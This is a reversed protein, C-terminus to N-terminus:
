PHPEYNIIRSDSDNAASAESLDWLGGSNAVRGVAHPLACWSWRAGLVGLLYVDLATGAGVVERWGDGALDDM